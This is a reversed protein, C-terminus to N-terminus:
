DLYCMINHAKMVFLQEDGLKIQFDANKIFIVKRGEEVPPYEKFNKGSYKVIGELKNTEPAVKMYLWEKEPRPIPNGKTDKLETYTKLRIDEWSETIPLVLVNSGVGEIKGDKDVRAWIRDYRVRYVPDGNLIAVLMETAEEGLVGYHFYINDGVEITPTIDSMKRFQRPVDLPIPKMEPKLGIFADSLSEPVSVVKGYTRANKLPDFSSDLFLETKGLQITDEHTKEATIFVYDFPSRLKVDKSIIQPVIMTQKSKSSFYMSIDKYLCM